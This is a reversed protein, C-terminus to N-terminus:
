QDGGKEATATLQVQRAKLAEKDKPDDFRPEGDAADAKRFDKGKKATGGSPQGSSQRNEGDAAKALTTTSDGERQFTALRVLKCYSGDEQHRMSVEIGYGKLVPILRRLRRSFINTFAPIEEHQATKAEMQIFRLKGLLVCTQDDFAPQENMLYMIAQVIVDKDTQPAETESPRRGGARCEERIQSLIFEREAYSLITENQDYYVATVLDTVRQSDAPWDKQFADGSIHVTPELVSNLFFTMKEADRLQEILRSRKRKKEENKQENSESM